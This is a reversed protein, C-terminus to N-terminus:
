KKRKKFHEKASETRSKLIPQVEISILQLRGSYKRQISAVFDSLRKRGTNVSVPASKGNREFFGKKSVWVGKGQLKSYAGFVRAEFGYIPKRKRGAPFRKPIIITPENPIDRKRLKKVTPKGFRTERIKREKKLFRRKLQEQTTVKVKSIPPIKLPTENKRSTKQKSDKRQQGKKNYVNKGRKRIKTPKRKQKEKKNVNPKRKSM